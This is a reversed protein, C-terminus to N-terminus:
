TKWLPFTMSLVSIFLDFDTSCNNRNNGVWVKSSAVCFSDLFNLHLRYALVQLFAQDLVSDWALASHAHSGGDDPDCINWLAQLLFWSNRIKHHYSLMVRPSVSHFKLKALFLCIQFFSTYAELATRYSLSDSMTDSDLNYRQCVVGVSFCSVRTVLEGSILRSLFYDKSIWTFKFHWKTTCFKNLSWVYVICYSTFWNATNYPTETFFSWVTRRM